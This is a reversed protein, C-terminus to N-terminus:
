AVGHRARLDELSVLDEDDDLEPHVEIGAPTLTHPVNHSEFYEHLLADGGETVLSRILEEIVRALQRRAEEETVGLALLGLRLDRAAWGGSHEEVRISPEFRFRYPTEIM